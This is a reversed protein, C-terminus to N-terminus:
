SNYAGFDEPNDIFSTPANHHDTPAIAKNHIPATDISVESLYSDATLESDTITDYFNDNDTSSCCMTQLPSLFLEGHTDSIDLDSIEDGSFQLTTDQSHQDSAVNVQHITPEPPVINNTLTQISVSHPTNGFKLNYQEVHGRM